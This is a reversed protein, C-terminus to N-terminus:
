CVRSKTLVDQDALGEGGPGARAPRSRGRLGRLLGALLRPVQALEDAQQPGVRAEGPLLESVIYLEADDDDLADLEAASARAPPLQVHQGRRRAHAPEEVHGRALSDRDIQRRSLSRPSRVWTRPSRVPTKLDQDPRSRPTRRCRPPSRILSESYRPSVM